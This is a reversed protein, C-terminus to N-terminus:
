EKLVKLPGPRVWLSPDGSFYALRVSVMVLRTTLNTQHDFWLQLTM